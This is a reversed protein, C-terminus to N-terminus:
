SNREYYKEKDLIKYFDRTDVTMTDIPMNRSELYKLTDETIKLICMDLDAFALNRVIDLDVQKDRGPEIYDAVFIIKELVSMAPRGTTHNIIANLIDEDDIKYDRRAFFAGVKGHLLYPSNKESETVFIDNKNCIELLEEDPICKANDHLIGALRAKQIFASDGDRYKMALCAATYEVGKTHVYRKEDIHKKVNLEIAAIDYM